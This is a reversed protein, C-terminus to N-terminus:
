WSNLYKNEKDIRSSSLNAGFVIVKKGMNGDTSSFESRSDFGINHSHYKYKDPDADKTLKVSGFLCNNSTFDLNSNRLWPNLIYSIYPNIVKKPNSIKYDILCHWNFNLGLLVYHDVFILAFNTDSKTVNEINEVRM